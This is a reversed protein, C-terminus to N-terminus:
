SFLERRIYFVCAIVGFIQIVVQLYLWNFTSEEPQKKVLFLLRRKDLRDRITEYSVYECWSPIHHWVTAHGHALTIGYEGDTEIPVVIRVQAFERSRASQSVIGLLQQDKNFIGGGSNGEFVQISARNTGEKSIWSYYGKTILPSRGKTMGITFLSDGYLPIHSSFGINSKINWNTKLIAFDYKNQKGLFVPSASAILSTRNETYFKIIIKREDEDIVENNNTDISHAATIIYGTNLLVGTSKFGNVSVKCTANYADRINENTKYSKTPSMLFLISLLAVGIIGLVSGYLISKKM